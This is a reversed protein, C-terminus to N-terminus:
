GTSLGPCQSPHDMSFPTTRPAGATMTHHSHASYPLAGRLLLAESESIRPTRRKPIATQLSRSCLQFACFCIAVGTAM